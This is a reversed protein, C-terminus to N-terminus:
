SGLSRNPPDVIMDASLNETSKDVPYLAVKDAGRLKLFRGLNSRNDAWGKEGGHFVEMSTFLEDAHKKKQESNYKQIDHIVLGRNEPPTMTYVKCGPLLKEVEEVVGYDDSMVFVNGDTVGMEKVLQPLDAATMERGAGSTKDGRRVYLSIYAGGIKDTFAKAREVIEPRPVFVEKAANMYEELSFQPLGSVSAHKYNEEKAHETKPDYEKLSTFHDHWRDGFQWNDAKVFFEKGEKKAYLYARMLFGVVSGFGAGNTLTFVVVSKPANGGRQSRKTRRRQLRRRTIRRRAM